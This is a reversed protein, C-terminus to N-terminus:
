TIVARVPAGSESSRARWCGVHHISRARLTVKCVECAPASRESLSDDVCDVCDWSDDSCVSDATAKVGDATDIMDSHIESASNPMHAARRALDRTSGHM